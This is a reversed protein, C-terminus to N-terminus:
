STTTTTEGQQTVSVIVIVGIVGLLWFRKKKFWPRLAKAKAKAAKAEAKANKEDSM